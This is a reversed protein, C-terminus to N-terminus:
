APGPQANCACDPRHQRIVYKAPTELGARANFNHQDALADRLGAARSLPLAAPYALTENRGEARIVHYANEPM